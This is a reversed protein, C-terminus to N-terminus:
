WTVSKGMDDCHTLVSPLITYSKLIGREICKTEQEHAWGLYADIENNPVHLVTVVIKNSAVHEEAVLVEFM